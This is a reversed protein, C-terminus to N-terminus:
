PSGPPAPPASDSGDLAESRADYRIGAGIMAGIVYPVVLYPLYFFPSFLVAVAMTSSSKPGAPQSVLYLTFGALGLWGLAGAVYAPYPSKEECAGAHVAFIVALAIFPLTSGIPGIWFTRGGNPGPIVYSGRFILNAVLPVLVCCVLPFLLEIRDRMDQTM